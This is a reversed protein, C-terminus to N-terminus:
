LLLRSLLLTHWTTNLAPDCQNIETVKVSTSCSNIHHDICCLWWTTQSASRERCWSEIAEEPLNLGKGWTVAERTDQSSCVAFCACAAALIYFSATKEIAAKVGQM